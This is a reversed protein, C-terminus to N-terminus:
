IFSEVTDADPLETVAEEASQLLVKVAEDSRPTISVRFAKPKKVFGEIYCLFTLKALILYVSCISAMKRM